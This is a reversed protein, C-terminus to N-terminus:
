LHMCLMKVSMSQRSKEFFIEMFTESNEHQSGDREHLMQMSWWLTTDIIRPDMHHCPEHQSRKSHLALLGPRFNGNM